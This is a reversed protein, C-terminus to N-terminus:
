LADRWAAVVRTVISRMGERRAGSDCAQLIKQKLSALASVEEIGISSEPGTDGDQRLRAKQIASLVLVQASAVQSDATDLGSLATRLQRLEDRSYSVRRAITNM